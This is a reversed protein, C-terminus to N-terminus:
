IKNYIREVIECRKESLIYGSNGNITFIKGSTLQNLISSIFNDEWETLEKNSLTIEDIWNRHIANLRSIDEQTPYSNFPSM